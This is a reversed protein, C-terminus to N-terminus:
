EEAKRVEGFGTGFDYLNLNLFEQIREFVKTRTALSGGQFDGNIYLHEVDVGRNGIGLGALASALPTTDTSTFSEIVLTAKGATSEGAGGTLKLGRVFAKRVASRFDVTLVAEASGNRYMSPVGKIISLNGWASLNTPANLSIAARFRDGRLQVARLAIYGGVGQGMVVVRKLDIKSRANMWDVAALLDAVPVTDLGDRIALLHARGFGAAGRPTLRMVVLGMDALMEAERNFGPEARDWLGAELYILLPPPQIKPENPLTLYGTLQVGEPTQFVFSGSANLPTSALWPTSSLIQEFKRAGRDFVFIGGPDDEASMRILFRSRADDWSVVEIGHRPYTADLDAQLQRLEPDLWYTRPRVTMFRIGVLKRTKEDFVLLDRAQAPDGPALDVGKVEPALETREHTKLNLAYIGFTDRGVNSAIYHIDPDFDFGIPYSRDGFYNEPSVTFEKAKPQGLAKDLDAPVFDPEFMPKGPETYIFRRPAGDSTETYLIRPRGQRDYMMRGTSSSEPSVPGGTTPTLTMSEPPRGNGPPWGNLEIGNPGITPPSSMFAALKMRTTDPSSMNMNVGALISYKDFYNTVSALSGRAVTGASPQYVWTDMGYPLPPWLLMDGRGYLAIQHGLYEDRNMLEGQGTRVDVKYLNSFSEPGVLAVSEILIHEPDGAL